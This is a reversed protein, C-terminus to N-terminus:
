LYLVPVLLSSLLLEIQNHPAARQSASMSAGPWGVSAILSAIDLV